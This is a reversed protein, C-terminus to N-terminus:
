DRVVDDVPTRCIEREEPSLGIGRRNARIAFAIVTAVAAVAAAAAILLTTMRGTDVTGDM